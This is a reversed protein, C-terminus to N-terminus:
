RRFALASPSFALAVLRFGEFILLTVHLATIAAYVVTGIGFYKSAEFV